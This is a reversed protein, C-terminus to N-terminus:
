WNRTIQEHALIASLSANYVSVSITTFQDHVVLLAVSSTVALIRSLVKGM